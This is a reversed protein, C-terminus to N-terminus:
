FKALDIFVDTPPLKINNRGILHYSRSGFSGASEAPSIVDNNIVKNITSAVNNDFGQGVLKYNNHISIKKDLQDFGIGSNQTSGFYSSAMFWVIVGVAAPVVFSIQKMKSKPNKKHKKDAEWYMYIYTLAGVLIGIIIPSRLIDM